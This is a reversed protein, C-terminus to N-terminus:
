NARGTPLDNGAKTLRTGIEIAQPGTVWMKKHETGGDEAASEISLIIVHSGDDKRQGLEMNIKTLGGCHHDTFQDPKTM